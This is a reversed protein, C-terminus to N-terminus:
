QKAAICSWEDSTPMGTPSATWTIGDASYAAASGNIVASVFLGSGYAMNIWKDVSPMTTSAWDIGDSGYAPPMEYGNAVFTNNGFAIIMWLGGVMSSSSWNVGDTSYAASEYVNDNFTIAVFIGNGYAVSVWNGTGSSPLGGPSATWSIGNTSYASADDFLSIAVFMGNGYTVCTWGDTSPMGSPSATWNIGDYSYAAGTSAIAVFMGNGYTVSSWGDSSPLGGPSATWNIGDYSYASHNGGGAVAVFMNEGFAVSQWAGDGPSPLGGPSAAWNTGDMSYAVNNDGSAIAVFAATSHQYAGIDWPGTPPRPNGAADNTFFSSLNAGAYIAPSGSQPIYSSSLDPNNSISHSDWTFYGAQWGSYTSGGGGDGGAFDFEETGGTLGSYLNTDCYLTYNGSGYEFAAVATQVNTTLNNKVDYITESYGYGGFVIIGVAYGPGIITNNYVRAVESAPYPDAYNLGINIFGDAPGSGDSGDLINNCELIGFVYGSVYLGATQVLGYGPGVHNAIYTVNTLTGGSQGWAYFGNHHYQDYNANDPSTDWCQWNYFWNNSVLMGNMYSISESDSCSGGWNCNYCTCGLMACGGCNTYYQWSVGVFEDHFVCNSVVCNTFAAGFLIGNGPNNNNGSDPSNAPRVYFNVVALNKVLIYSANNFFLGTDNNTYALGAGDATEQVIGNDGGDVVINNFGNDYLAVQNPWCPSTLSAGPEFHLTVPNGASGGGQFVLWTTVTGVLHVETGPGILGTGSGWHGSTNFWAVSHADAADNGTDSGCSNQAVYIDQAMSQFALLLGITVLILKKM